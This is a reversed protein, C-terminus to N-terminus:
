RYNKPKHLRALVHRASLRTGPMSNTSLIDCLPRLVFDRHLLETHPIILHKEAWLGGSWLLIDLDLSRAQWRQGRRKRGFRHEVGQLLMLLDPPSLPSAIALAANTYQRHSPGIPRSVRIKSIAVVRCDPLSNIHAVAFELIKRPSGYIHHWQNSGLGLLYIQGEDM